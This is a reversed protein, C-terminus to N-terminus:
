LGMQHQMFNFVCYDVIIGCSIENALSRNDGFSIHIFIFLGFFVNSVKVSTSCTEIFVKANADARVPRNIFIVYENRSFRWVYNRGNVNITACRNTTIKSFFMQFFFIKGSSGKM